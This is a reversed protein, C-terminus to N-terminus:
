SRPRSTTPLRMASAEVSRDRGIKSRGLRCDFQLPLRAQACDFPHRGSKFYIAAPVAAV